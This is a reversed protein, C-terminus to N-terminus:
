KEVFQVAALTFYINGDTDVEASNEFYNSSDPLSGKEATKFKVYILLNEGDELSNTLEIDVTVLNLTNDISWGTIQPTDTLVEAYGTANVRIVELGGGLHAPNVDFQSGFDDTISVNTVGSGTINIVGYVQGPNTSSVKGTKKLIYSMNYIGDTFEDLPDGLNAPLQMDDSTGLIGDTGPDYPVFDVNTHRFDKEVTTLNTVKVNDIRVPGNADRDGFLLPMPGITTDLKTTSKWIFTGDMYFEVYSDPLIKIKYTHWANQYPAANSSYLYGEGTIAFFLSPPQTNFNGDDIFLVSAVHATDCRTNDVYAGDGRPALLNPMHNSLGGFGWNWDYGSAVYMDFEIELGNSYDFTSKSYAGNGCWGNGNVDLSPAPNGMGMDLQPAPDGSSGGASDYVVRDWANLTSFDEYFIPTAAPATGILTMNLILVLGIAGLKSRYKKNM